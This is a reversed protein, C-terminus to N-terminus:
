SKHEPEILGFHGDKRRYLVKIKQDEENRFILFSDKSLDLKMIAEDVTLTKLQRTEQAIPQKSRGPKSDLAARKANEAEIDKNYNAVEDEEPNRFVNVRMDVVNRGKAQHDQIRDKYRLLQRELKGVAIDISAYMENTCAHSKIKINDVKMIIDVRHEGGKQIDMIINVDIIRQSFKEIKSIKELAYDKMAETISVHRGTISINYGEQLFEAAKSKRSM